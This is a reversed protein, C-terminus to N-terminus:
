LVIYIIVNRVNEGFSGWLVQDWERVLRLIFHRRPEFEACVGNQVNFTLCEFSTVILLFNRKKCTTVKTAVYVASIFVQLSM